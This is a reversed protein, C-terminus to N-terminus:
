GAKRKLYYFKFKDRAIKLRYRAKEKSNFLLAITEFIDKEEDRIKNILKFRRAELRAIFAINENLENQSLNEKHILYKKELIISNIEKIKLALSKLREAENQRLIILKRQLEFIQSVSLDFNESLSLVDKENIFEPIYYLKLILRDIEEISEFTIEIDKLTGEEENFVEFPLTDQYDEISLENKFDKYVFKMFNIFNNKLVYNFWTKFKVESEPNFNVIIKDLREIIYLYFDGCVDLNKKYAMKPFYYIYESLEKKLEEFVNSPDFSFNKILKRIKEDNLNM